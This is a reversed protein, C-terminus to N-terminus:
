VLVILTIVAMLGTLIATAFTDSDTTAAQTWRRLLTSLTNM